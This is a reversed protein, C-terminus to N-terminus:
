AHHSGNFQDTGVESVVGSAIAMVPVGRGYNPMLSGIDAGYHFNGPRWSSYGYPSNMTASQTVDKWCDMRGDGDSDYYWTSDGPGGDGEELPDFDTNLGDDVWTPETWCTTHGSPPEGEVEVSGSRCVWTTSWSAAAGQCVVMLLASLGIRLPKM